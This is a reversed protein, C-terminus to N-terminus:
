LLASKFTGLRRRELVRYIAKLRRHRLPPLRQRHAQRAERTLVGTREKVSWQSVFAWARNLAFESSSIRLAAMNWDKLRAQHRGHSADLGPRGCRM